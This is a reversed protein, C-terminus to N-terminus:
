EEPSWTGYIYQKFFKRNWEEAAYAEAVAEMLSWRYILTRYHHYQVPVLIRVTDLEGELIFHAIKTDESLM